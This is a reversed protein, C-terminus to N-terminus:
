QKKWNRINIAIVVSLVSITVFSSNFFGYAYFLFASVALVLITALGAFKAAKLHGIRQYFPPTARPQQSHRQGM